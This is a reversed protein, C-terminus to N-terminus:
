GSFVSSDIGELRDDIANEVAEHFADVADDDSVAFGDIQRPLFEFILNLDKICGGDDREEILLIERLQEDSFKVGQVLASYRREKERRLRAKEVQEERTTSSGADRSDASLLRNAVTDHPPGRGGSEMIPTPKSITKCVSRNFLQSRM